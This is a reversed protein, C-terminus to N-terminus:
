KKIRKQKEFKRNIQYIIKTNLYNNNKKVNRKNNQNMKSDNIYEKKKDLCLTTTRALRLM